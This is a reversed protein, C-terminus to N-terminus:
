PRRPGAIRHEPSCYWGAPDAVADDRPLHVGCHRCAVVERATTRQGSAAHGARDRSRTRLLLWVVVVVVLLVVLYKM